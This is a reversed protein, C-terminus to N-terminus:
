QGRGHLWEAADALERARAALRTVDEVGALLTEMDGPEPVTDADLVARFAAVEPRETAPEIDFWWNCDCPVDYHWGGINPHDAAYKATVRIPESTALYDIDLPFSAGCDPCALSVVGQDITMLWDRPSGDLNHEVRAQCPGCKKDEVLAAAIFSAGEEAPGVVRWNLDSM